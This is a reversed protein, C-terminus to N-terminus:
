DDKKQAGTVTAQHTPLIDFRAVDVSKPLRLAALVMAAVDEPQVASQGAYMAERAEPSLLDKYLGTEVRGAVIETVRLGHPALDLRLAQAFGGIAAKTACYVALKAFPAHGATSGTFFLHGGGRAKMGPVIARTVRLASTLNVSVARDIDAEDLEDFPLLPPMMGANNVLVDPALGALSNRVAEADSLDLRLPHLGLRGLDDLAVPDRGIATVAYGAGHLALAIARGIGSTAGTVLAQMM